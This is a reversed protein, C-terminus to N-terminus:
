NSLQFDSFIWDTGFTHSEVMTQGNYPKGGSFNIMKNSNDKRLLYFCVHKHEHRRGIGEYVEM